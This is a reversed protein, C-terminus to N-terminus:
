KNYQNSHVITGNGKKVVYGLVLFIRNIDKWAIDLPEHILQGDPHTETNSSYARIYDDDNGRQVRKTIRYESTEVVYDRGWIMLQREKVEKMALICGSPYEVMSDEYHRIAHTASKFWDGPDIWEAAQSDPEIKATYGSPLKGGITSVDDYLPILRKGAPIHASDHITVGHENDKRADSEAADLILSNGEDKL